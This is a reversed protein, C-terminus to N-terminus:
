NGPTKAIPPATKMKNKNGQNSLLGTREILYLPGNNLVDNVIKTVDNKNSPYKPSFGELM